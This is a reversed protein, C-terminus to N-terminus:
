ASATNVIRGSVDEFLRRVGTAEPRVSARGQLDRAASSVEGSRWLADILTQNFLDRQAHSGGVLELRTIVPQLIRVCEGYRGQAHAAVGRAALLAIEHWVPQVSAHMAPIRKALSSLFREAEGERGARALAYVYHLDQFPLLHDHGREEVKVALPSWREGVDVGRLELRWLASIAGVQEQSFEPWAGWLHEDYIRLVEAADDLDLHFLAVHWWNHERIFISRDAWTPALDRMFAIGEELRGQTEMVHAVAHHAWPENRKLAIAKRGAKEAGDLSHCQELAFAQMGHAYPTEAHAPLIAEALTRMARADGLNFAHYQGWKAAVIDTPWHSVISLLREVAGSIDGDAMAEAAQVFARERPTAADSFQLARKLFPQAAEYGAMAELAMHVMAAHANVFACSRDRDAAKIIAPLENGYSLWAEGYLNLAAITAPDDTTVHQDYADKLM